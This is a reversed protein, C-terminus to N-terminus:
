TSACRGGQRRPPRTRLRAPVPPLNRAAATLARDLDKQREIETRCRPCSELHGQFMELRSGTLSGDLYDEIEDCTM